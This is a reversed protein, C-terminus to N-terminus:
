YCPRLSASAVPGAAPFPPSHLNPDCQPAHGDQEARGNGRRQQLSRAQGRGQGVANAKESAEANQARAAVVERHSGGWWLGQAQGEAQRPGAAMKAQIRERCEEKQHDVQPAAALRKAM